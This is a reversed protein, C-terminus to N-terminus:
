ERLTHRDNKCPRLQQWLYRLYRAPHDPTIDALVIADQKLRQSFCSTLLTCTYRFKSFKGSNPRFGVFTRLTVYPSLAGSTVTERVNKARVWCLHWFFWLAPRNRCPGPSRLPRQRTIAWAFAATQPQSCRFKGSVEGIGAIQALKVPIANMETTRHGSNEFESRHSTAISRLEARRPGSGTVRM